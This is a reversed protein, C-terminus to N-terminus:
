LYSFECIFGHTKSPGGSAISVRSRYGPPYELPWSPWVGFITNEAATKTMELPDPPDM